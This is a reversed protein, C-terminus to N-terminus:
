FDPWREGEFVEVTEVSPSAEPRDQIERWRDALATIHVFYEYTYRHLSADFWELRFIKTLM